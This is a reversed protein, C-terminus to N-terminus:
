PKRAPDEGHSLRDDVPAIGCVAMAGYRRLYTITSGIGQPDSKVPRAAVTASVHQDRWMLRTEVEVVGGEGLRPLQVLAIGHASLHPRVADLVSALSAFESRFHPNRSDRM